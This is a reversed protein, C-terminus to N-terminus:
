WGEAKRDTTYIPMWLTQARQPSTIWMAQGSGEPDPPLSHGFAYEDYGKLCGGMIVGPINILQHMHGILMSKMPMGIIDQRKGKRHSGLLLPSFAGSIGTGGRFEQGHTVVYNRDYVTINLDPGDSVNITIDDGEAAFRDRIISWFLWEVNDQVHGKYQHKKSSRGHNGVVAEVRVAPYNSRLTRLSAMIPSQYAVLSALIRAENSRVLEDHIEGTFLDGTALVVVGQLEIGAMYRRPLEIAKETWVKIRQLAIERNFANIGFIEEPKVVEDLHWDACHLMVIGEHLGDGQAVYWPPAVVAEAMAEDVLRARKRLYDIEVRQDKIVAGLRKATAQTAADQDEQEAILGAIRGTM